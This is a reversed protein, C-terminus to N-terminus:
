QNLFRDVRVRFRGTPIRQERKWKALTSPDVELVRAVEKQSLGQGARQRALAEGLSTAPPRPDYGLFGIVRPSVDFGALQTGEGLQCREHGWDWDPDRRGEM